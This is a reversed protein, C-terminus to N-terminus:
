NKRPTYLECFGHERDSFVATDGREGTPSVTCAWGCQETTQGKGFKRRDQGKILTSGPFLNVELQGNWPHCM